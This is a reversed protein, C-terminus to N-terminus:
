APVETVVQTTRRDKFRWVMLASALLGVLGAWIWWGDGYMGYFWNGMSGAVGALSWTMGKFGFYRGRFKEPTLKSMYAMAIPFAVIEGLTFLTMALIYGTMTSAIFFSATGLSLLIYGCCIVRKYDMHQLWQCLPLEIVVIVLGNFAMVM